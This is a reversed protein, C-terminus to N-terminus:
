GQAAVKVWEKYDCRNADDKAKACFYGAIPKGDKSKGVWYKAPENCHCKHETEEEQEKTRVISRVNSPQQDTHTAVERRWLERALGFSECARKFAQAYANSATDGYSERDIQEYGTGDHSVIGEKTHISVRVVAVCQSGLQQLSVVESSWVGARQDMLDKCDTIDLYAIDTDKQKRYRIKDSPIPQRIATVIESYTNYGTAATTTMDEDERAERNHDTQESTAIV